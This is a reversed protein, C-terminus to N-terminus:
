DTVFGETEGSDDAARPVELARNLEDILRVVKALDGEREVEAVIAHWPRIPTPPLLTM